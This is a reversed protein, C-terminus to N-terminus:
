SNLYELIERFTVDDDTPDLEVVVIDYKVSFMSAEIMSTDNIIRNLALDFASKYGLVPDRLFGYQGGKLYRVRVRCGMLNLLQNNFLDELTRM